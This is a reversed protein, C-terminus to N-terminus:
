VCWPPPRSQQPAGPQPAGARHASAADTASTDSATRIQSGVAVDTQAGEVADGHAPLRTPNAAVAAVAQCPDERCHPCSRRKGAQSQRLWRDICDTHFRHGCPLCRLRCGAVLPEWCLSCEESSSNGPEYLIVPLALLAALRDMELSAATQPSAPTPLTRLWRRQKHWAYFLLAICLAGFSAFGLGGGCGLGGSTLSSAQANGSETANIALATVNSGMISGHIGGGSSKYGVQLRRGIMTLSIGLINMASM